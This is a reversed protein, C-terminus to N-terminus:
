KDMMFVMHWTQTRTEVESPTMGTSPTSRYLGIQFARQVIAAMLGWTESSMVQDSHGLYALVSAKSLYPFMDGTNQFYRQLLGMTAEYSLPESSGSTSFPAISPIAPKKAAPGPSPWESPSIPFGRRLSPQLTHARPFCNVADVIHELFMSNSTPGPSSIKNACIQSSFASKCKQQLSIQYVGFHGADTEDKFTICAMGDVPDTSPTLHMLLTEPPSKPLYPSGGADTKSILTELLQQMRDLRAAVSATASDSPTKKTPVSPEFSKKPPNYHCLFGMENCKDCVPRGGDCRSKRSRCEECAHATRKRKFGRPADPHSFSQSM